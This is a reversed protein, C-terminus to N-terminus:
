PLPAARAWLVRWPSPVATSSSSTSSSPWGLGTGGNKRARGKDVRFFREFVRSRPMRQIGIGTDAVVATVWASDASVTVNVSGGKVNYKM